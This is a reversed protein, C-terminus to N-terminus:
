VGDYVEVKSTDECSKLLDAISKKFIPHQLKGDLENLPLLVFKRLHLRPHPVTIKESEIIEDGFFLIDVDMERSLYKESSRKRGYFEELEEIEQMLAEVTLETEIKLVQNLFDPAGEMGWAATQYVSSSAIIDGMNFLVFDRTEELNEERDGLNGGICLYAITKKM